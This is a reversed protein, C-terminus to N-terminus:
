NSLGFASQTIDDQTNWKGDGGSSQVVRRNGEFSFKMERGWADRVQTEGFLRAYNKKSFELNLNKLPPKLQCSSCSVDLKSEEIIKKIDKKRSLFLKIRKKTLIDNGISLNVKKYTSTIGTKQKSPSFTRWPLVRINPLGVLYVELVDPRRKQIVIKGMNGKLKPEGDYPWFVSNWFQTPQAYTLGLNEHLDLLTIPMDYFIGYADEYRVWALENRKSEYVSRELFVVILILLPTLFLLSRKM